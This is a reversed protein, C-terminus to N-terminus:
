SRAIKLRLDSLIHKLDRDNDGKSAAQTADLISRTKILELETNILEDAIREAQGETTSSRRDLPTATNALSTSFLLGTCTLSARRM